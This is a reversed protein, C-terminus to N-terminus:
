IKRSSINSNQKETFNKKKGLGQKVIRRVTSRSIGEAREIERPTSHTHPEAEQSEILNGVIETNDDTHVTRPRGSGVKRASSGTDRIKKLLDNITTVKWHKNPYERILRKAGWGKELYNERILIRDDKSM